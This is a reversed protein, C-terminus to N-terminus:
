MWGMEKGIRDLAEQTSHDVMKWVRRYYRFTQKPFIRSVEWISRHHNYFSVMKGLLWPWHKYSKQNKFQGFNGGSYIRNRVAILEKEYGERYLPFDRKDFGLYGVALSSFVQWPKVLDYQKILKILDSQRQRVEELRLSLAWDCIQRYSIGATMFHNFLHMFLFIANFLPTPVQVLIDNLSVFTEEDKFLRYEWLRLSRDLKESLPITTRWHIDYRFGKEDTVHFHKEGNPKWDVLCGWNEFLVRTREIQDEEILLDIDGCQRRLPNPYLQSIGQGKLLIARINEKKLKTYYLAVQHDMLRNMQELRLVYAILRTSQERLAETPKVTQLADFVLGLVTQEQALQFLSLWDTENLELWQDSLPSKLLAVRLLEEFVSVVKENM